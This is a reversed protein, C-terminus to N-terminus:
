GFRPGVVFEGSSVRASHTTNGLGFLHHSKETKRDRAGPSKGVSNAAICWSLAASYTRTSARPLLLWFCWFLFDALLSCHSAAINARALASCASNASSFMLWYWYISSSSSGRIGPSCPLHFLHCPSTLRLHLQSQLPKPFSKGIQRNEKHTTRRRTQEVVTAKYDMRCDCIIATTWPKVLKTRRRVGATQQTDTNQADVIKTKARRKWKEESRENPEIYWVKAKCYETYKTTKTNTFFDVCSIDSILLSFISAMLFVTKTYSHIHTIDGQQEFLCM